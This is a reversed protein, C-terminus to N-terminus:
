KGLIPIFLDYPIPISKLALIILDELLEESRRVEINDDTWQFNHLKTNVDEHRYKDIKPHYVPYGKNNLIMSSTSIPLVTSSIEIIRSAKFDLGVIGSVCFQEFSAKSPLFLFYLQLIYM